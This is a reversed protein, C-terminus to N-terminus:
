ITSWAHEISIVAGSVEMSMDSSLFVPLNAISEPTAPKSFGPDDSVHASHVPKMTAIADLDMDKTVSKRIDTVVGALFLTRLLEWRSRIDTGGCWVM